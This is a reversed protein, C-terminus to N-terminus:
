LCDPSVAEPCQGSSRSEKETYFLISITPVFLEITAHQQQSM